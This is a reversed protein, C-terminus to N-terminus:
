KGLVGPLEKVDVVDRWQGLQLLDVLDLAKGVLSFYQRYRYRSEM